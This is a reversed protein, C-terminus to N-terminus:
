DNPNRREQEFSGVLESREGFLMGPGDRLQAGNPAVSTGTLGALGPPTPAFRLPKVPGLPAACDLVHHGTNM